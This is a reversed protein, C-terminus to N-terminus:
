VVTFKDPEDIKQILNWGDRGVVNNAPNQVVKTSFVVDDANFPVGDSWKVGKRIHWTITKGDRSIGGNAQTPVVTVLEPVPRNSHDYRVLYAMTMETLWNLRTESNIVPNLTALDGGGDAYRLYHPHTFANHAKGRTENGTGAKTCGAFVMLLILGALKKVDFM